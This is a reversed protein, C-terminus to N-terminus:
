SVDYVVGRSKVRAPQTMGSTARSSPQKLLGGWVGATRSIASGAM